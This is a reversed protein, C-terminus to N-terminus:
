KKFTDSKEFNEQRKREERKNLNHSKINLKSQFANEISDEDNRSALETLTLTSLDKTKEIISVKPDFKSPLIILIKEVIKKNPLDEGYSKMKTVLSMLRTYYCKIKESDKKKINAYQKMLSQLLITCIKIDG